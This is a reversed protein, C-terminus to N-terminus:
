LRGSSRLRNRSFQARTLMYVTFGITITVDGGSVRWDNILHVSTKFIFTQLTPDRSDILIGSGPTHILSPSLINKHSCSCGIIVSRGCLAIHHGPWPNRRPKTSNLLISCAYGWISLRFPLFRLINKIKKIGISWQYGLPFIWVVIVGFSQNNSQNTLQNRVAWPGWLLFGKLFLLVVCFVLLLVGM